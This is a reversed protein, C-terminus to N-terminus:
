IREIEDELFGEEKEDITLVFWDSMWRDTRMWQSEIPGLIKEIKGSRGEFPSYWEGTVVVMEGIQLPPDKPVWTSQRTM